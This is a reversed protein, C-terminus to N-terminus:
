YDVYMHCGPVPIVYWDINIMVLLGNPLAVFRQDLEHVDVDEIGWPGGRRRHLGAQAARWGYGDHIDCMVFDGDPFADMGTARDPPINGPIDDEYKRWQQLEEFKGPRLLLRQYQPILSCYPIVKLPVRKIKNNVKKVRYLRGKTCEEKCCLPSSLTALEDPHHLDWCVDCMFYYTIYKDPDVGLRREVTRLTRAMNELGQVTPGGRQELSHLAQYHADLQSKISEHTAHNFAAEIFVRIYINRLIPDEYFASPLDELIDEAIDSPEREDYIHDRCIFLPDDAVDVGDGDEDGTDDIDGAQARISGSDSGYDGDNNGLQDLDSSPHPPPTARLEDYEFDLNEAPPLLDDSDAHLYEDDPLEGLGIPAGLDVEEELSEDQYYEWLYENEQNQGATSPFQESMGDAAFGAQTGDFNWPQDVRRNPTKRKREALDEHAAEKALAEQRKMHRKITKPTQLLRGNAICEECPWRHLPASQRSESINDALKAM